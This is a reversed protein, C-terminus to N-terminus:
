RSSLFSNVRVRERLIEEVRNGDEATFGIDVWQHKLVALFIRDRRARKLDKPYWTKFNGTGHLRWKGNWLTPRKVVIYKIEDLRVVKSKGTPYYYHHFTIERDTIAVLDDQYLMQRGESARCVMPAGAPKPNACFYNGRKDM